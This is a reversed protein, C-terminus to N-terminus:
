KRGYLKEEIVLCMFRVTANWIRGLRRPERFLRYLWELGVARMLRPARPVAGSLYDFAGGVGMAVKVSPLNKLNEYIWKEQKGMGFAVFLIDAVIQPSYSASFLFHDPPIEKIDPGKAFGAIKLKPFKRQLEEAAKQVVEDRGSGLLYVSEGEREAVACVDLMFDTGPIREVGKLRLFFETGRGDCVNLDGANLVTKFYPDRQAKVLMEPNPTFIMRQGATELWEGVKAGAKARSIADFRVGLLMPM